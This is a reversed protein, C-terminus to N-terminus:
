RKRWWNLIGVLAGFIAAVLIAIFPAPLKAAISGTFVIMLGICFGSIGGVIGGVVGWWASRDLEREDSSILFAVCLIGILTPIVVAWLEWNWWQIQGDEIFM